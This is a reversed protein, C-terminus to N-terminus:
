FLVRFASRVAVCVLRMGGCYNQLGVDGSLSGYHRHLSAVAEFGISRLTTTEIDRGVLEVFASAICSYFLTLRLFGIGLREICTRNPLILIVSWRNLLTAGRINLIGIAPMIVLAPMICIIIGNLAFRLILRIM